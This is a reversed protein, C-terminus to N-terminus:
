VHAEEKLRARKLGTDRAFAHLKVMDLRRRGHRRKSGEICWYSLVKGVRVLNYNKFRNTSPMDDMFEMVEAASVLHGPTRGKEVMAVLVEGIEALDEDEWEAELIPTGDLLFRGPPPLVTNAHIWLFHEAGMGKEVWQEWFTRDKNKLKQLHVAGANYNKLDLHIVRVATAQREDASMGRRAFLKRHLLDSNATMLVRLNAKLRVLAQHKQNIELYQGGILERFRGDYGTAKPPNQENVWIYPTKDVFYQWDEFIQKGAYTRTSVTQALINALLDKGIGTPGQISLAAVPGLEYSLAAAIWQVVTLKHIGFAVSLWTDLPEHFKPSLDNRRTYRSVVLSDGRLYGGVPPGGTLEVSTIPAGFVDLARQGTLAQPGKPGQTELGHLLKDKGVLGSGRLSAILVPGKVPTPHYLGNAQLVYYDNVHALVLRKRLAQALEDDDEPPDTWWASVGKRLEGMFTTTAEEDVTHQATEKAWAYCVMKWCERSLNRGDAKTNFQAAPLVVGWIHEPTTGEPNAYLMSVLSCIWTFLTDNRRKLTPPEVVDFCVEADRDRMRRKAKVGWPTLKSSGVRYVLALCDDADPLPARLLDSDLAKALAYGPDDFSPLADLPDGVHFPEPELEAGDRTVRPLAFLWNWPWCKVDFRVGWKMFEILLWRSFSEAMEPEIEPHLWIARLGARTKYILTPEAIGVKVCARLIDKKAALYGDMDLPVHDKGEGTDWDMATVSVTVVKGEARLLPLAPKNLRPWRTEGHVTYRAFHHYGPWRTSVADSFPVARYKPTTGIEDLSDIGSAMDRDPIVMVLPDTM